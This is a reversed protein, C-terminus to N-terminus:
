LNQFHSFFILSQYSQSFRAENMDEITVPINQVGESLIIPSSYVKERIL